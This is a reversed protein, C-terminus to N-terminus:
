PNLNEQSQCQNMLAQVSHSLREDLGLNQNLHQLAMQCEGLSQYLRGLAFHVDVAEPQYLIVQQYTQLALAEQGLNEYTVGLNFLADVQFPVLELVKQFYIKAEAYRGQEFYTTALNYLSNTDDPRYQLAKLYYEQALPYQHQRDYLFGLKTHLLYDYFEQSFVHPRFLVMFGLVFGLSTACKIFQRQHFKLVLWDLVYAEYILLFPVITIRHRHTLFYILTLLLSSVLLGNMWLTEKHQRMSLFLGLFSLPCLLFFPNIDLRNKWSRQLILDIDYADERQQFFMGAKKLLLNLYRRPEKRIFHLAQDRWYRSAQLPSVSKGTRAMTAILLDEDQTRHTPRIFEPNSFVGEAEPNNGVYFSLGSHASIFIWEGGVIKNRLTVSGVILCFGLIIPWLIAWRKLAFTPTKPCGLCFALIIFFILFKGDGLAALGILLGLYFWARKTKMTDRNLLSYIIILSLFIILSVHMMLADYFIFDFHIATLLSALIAVRRSFLRQAVLYILVCNLAGLGLHMLRMLEPSGLFLRYGVALVYPYLPFGFFPKSGLWDGQAIEKAWDHYYQVDSGPRDYFPYYDKLFFLYALRLVFAFLFILALFPLEQKNSTARM